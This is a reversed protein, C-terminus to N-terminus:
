PWYHCQCCVDDAIFNILLPLIFLPHSICFIFQTPSDLRPFSVYGNQQPADSVTPHGEACSGAPTHRPWESMTFPVPDYGSTVKVNDDIIKRRRLISRTPTPLATISKTPPTCMLNTTPLRRYNVPSEVGNSSRTIANDDAVFETSSKTPTGELEATPTRYYFTPRVLTRSGDVAATPTADGAPGPKPQVTFQSRLDRLCAQGSQLRSLLAENQRRLRRLECDDSPTMACALLQQQLCFM